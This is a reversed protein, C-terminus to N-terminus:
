SPTVDKLALRLREIREPMDGAGGKTLADFVSQAARRLVFFKGIVETQQREVMLHILRDTVEAQRREVMLNILRLTENDM